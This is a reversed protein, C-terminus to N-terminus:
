GNNDGLVVIKDASQITEQRHAAFIRTIKLQSINRVIKRENEVDLNSTAEDLILIRPKKYLARALMIRQKQGGSLTAGMDGVLSAYRMPMAEIVEHICALQACQKVLELDINEDFCSINDSITGSLLQDDQMVCAVFTRYNLISSIPIGDILISGHSAELLGLLCKLLTTKGSGSAGVIATSEGAKVEFCIGNLLYPDRESYKYYVDKVSVDGNINEISSANSGNVQPFSESSDDNDVFRHKVEVPSLAIDSVRQLHLGLMKFEIFYEVLKEMSETFRIQYAFFAFLMGVSFEGELIYHAAIMVVVVNQLGFILDRYIRYSAEYKQLVIGKNILKTFLSLWHNKRHEEREFLKITQMGRVTEMFHTNEKARHVIASEAHNRYPRYMSFRLTFYLFVFLVVLGALWVSYFVMAILTFIALAGDIIAAVIGTTMIRQVNELSRFRSVIDGIHRRYFYEMPLKLLKQFLNSVLSVNLSNSLHIIFTERLWSAFAQFLILLGFCTALVVLLEHDKQIFVHDIVLQTYLPLLLVIIQLVLSLMLIQVISRKFGVAKEFFYKISLNNKEVRENFTLAPSLELAVGTFHQSFEEVGLERRGSSPDHIIFRKGIIKNLVVFHDLDWHLICPLQLYKTDELDVRVPRSSLCVDSAIQILDKLTTGGAPSSIRQRISLLDTIHGYYNLIMAICAIGCEANETQLIVPLSSRSSWLM